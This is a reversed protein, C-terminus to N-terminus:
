HILYGEPFITDGGDIPHVSNELHLIGLSQKRRHQLKLQWLVKRAYAHIYLYSNALVFYVWIAKVKLHYFPKHTIGYNVLFSYLSLPPIM